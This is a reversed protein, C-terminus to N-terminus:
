PQGDKGGAQRCFGGRGGAIAQRRRGIGVTSVDRIGSRSPNYGRRHLVRLHRERSFMSSFPARFSFAWGRSAAAFVNVPAALPRRLHAGTKSSGPLELHRGGSSSRTARSVGRRILPKKRYDETMGLSCEDPSIVGALNMALHAGTVGASRAALWSCKRSGQRRRPWGVGASISAVPASYVKSFPTATVSEALRPERPAPPKASTHHRPLNAQSYLRFPLYRLVIPVGRVRHM